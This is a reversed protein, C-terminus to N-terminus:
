HAKEYDERSISTKSISIEPKRNMGYPCDLIIGFEPFFEGLRYRQIYHKPILRLFINYGNVTAPECNGTKKLSNIYDKFCRSTPKLEKIEKKLGLGELSFGM